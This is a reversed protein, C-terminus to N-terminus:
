VARIHRLDATDQLLARYWLEALLAPFGKWIIAVLERRVPLDNGEKGASGLSYRDLLWSACTAALWRLFLQRQNGARLYIHHM